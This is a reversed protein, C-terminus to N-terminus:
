ITENSFKTQCLAIFHKLNASLYGRKSWYIRIDRYHHGPLSYRIVKNDTLGAFRTTHPIITVGMNQAAMRYCTDWNNTELVIHPHLDYTEFIEDISQRLNQGRKVLIFPLKRLEDIDVVPYDHSSDSVANLPAAAPAALGIEERYLLISDVTGDEIPRNAVVLDLEGRAFQTCLNVFHDEVLKLTINPCDRMFDPLIEPYLIASLQAGCGVQLTGQQIATLDSIQNEMERKISLIKRAAEIYSHGAPTLALPSTNRDFLEAGLEKEVYSLLYSLSPKSVFLKRAAATMNGEEALTILYKLQRDTM